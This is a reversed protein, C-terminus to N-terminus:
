VFRKLQQSGGVLAGFWGSFKRSFSITRKERGLHAHQADRSGIYALFHL